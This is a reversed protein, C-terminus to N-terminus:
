DVLQKLAKYLCAVYDEIFFHQPVKARGAAGYAKVQEPHQILYSMHAVLEQETNYILGTKQHEVLEPTAGGNYGIVPNGFIMGEVTVRGMGESKSCVLVADAQRHVKEPEQVYGKFDVVEELQHQKIYRKIKLTYFRRGYGAIILRAQPYQQYVKHFAKLAQFQGKNPHILGIILFTFTSKQPHQNPLTAAYDAKSIVGDYMTLKPANVGKLVAKEIAHSISILLQAKNAWHRFPKRGRWFVANYDAEGFERMHWAHPLKLADALWAGIGLISSNTYILDPKWHEAQKILLPLYQTRNKRQLWENLWYNKNFYQLYAWNHYPSIFYDIQRAKLAEELSGAQPLALIPVVGHAKIGDLIALLSRNAGMMDAGHTFFLIRM